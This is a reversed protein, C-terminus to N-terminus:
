HGPQTAARGALAAALCDAVAHALIVNGEPNLHCFHDAYVPEQTSAFVQTLDHWDVGAARLAAGSERLLPYGAEIARASEQTAVVMRSREWESMPKSGPVYQNPQLCHVYVMGNARCLRDLQLSSLSWLEACRRLVADPDDYHERPGLAAYGLGEARRHRLLEWELDHLQRQYWDNRLKWALNWGASWHFVSGHALRAAEQRKGRLEVLRYAISSVRPDVVQHMRGHWLRPYSMYVGAAHNETAALVIENYGDLNVVADFQAGLSLLWTLALLQQPQKYGSVALRVLEIQKGRFAPHERLRGCLAEDGLVTLQWAVSGGLVAVVLRDPARRPIGREVDHFGLSNVPIHRGGLDTGTHTQPNAVWGLYPHVVEGTSPEVGAVALTRQHGRLEDISKSYVLSLGLRALGELVALVLCTTLAGFACRKRWSLRRRIRINAM